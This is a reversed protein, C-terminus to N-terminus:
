NQEARDSGRVHFNRQWDQRFYTYDFGREVTATYTDEVLGTLDWTVENGDGSLRRGTVSWTYLLDDNDPDSVQATLTIETSSPKCSLSFAETPCPLTIESQSASVTLVVPPLNGRIQTQVSDSISTCAVSTRLLARATVVRSIPRVTVSDTAQGAIITGGEVQWRLEIQQRADNNKIVAKYRILENAQRKNPGRVEVRPCSANPNPQAEILQAQGLFILFISFCLPKSLPVRNQRTSSMHFFRERSRKTVTLAPIRFFSVFHQAQWGPQPNVFLLRIPKYM